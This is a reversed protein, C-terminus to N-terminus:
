YRVLSYKKPFDAKSWQLASYPKEYLHVHVMGSLVRAEGVCEGKQMVYYKM